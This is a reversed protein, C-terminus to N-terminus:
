SHLYTEGNKWRRAMEVLWLEWEAESQFGTTMGGETADIALEIDEKRMGKWEAPWKKRNELAEFRFVPTDHGFRDCRFVSQGHEAFWARRAEPVRSPEAELAQQIGAHLKLNTLWLHVKRYHVGLDFVLTNYVGLLALRDADSALRTFYWTKLTDLDSPLRTTDQMLALFEPHALVASHYDM